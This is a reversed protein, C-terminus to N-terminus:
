KCGKKGKKKGMVKEMGETIKFYGTQLMSDVVHDCLRCMDEHDFVFMYEPETYSHTYSGFRKGMEVATTEFVEHFAIRARRSLTAQAKTGIIIDGIGDNSVGCTYFSGGIHRKSHKLRYENGVITIKKMGVWYM